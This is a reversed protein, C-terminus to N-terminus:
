WKVELIEEEGNLYANRKAFMRRALETDLTSLRADWMARIACKVDEETDGYVSYILALIERDTIKIAKM